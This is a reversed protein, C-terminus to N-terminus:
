VILKGMIIAELGSQSGLNLINDGTKVIHGILSIKKPEWTGQNILYKSVMGDKSDVVM